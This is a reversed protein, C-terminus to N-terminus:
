AGGQRGAWVWGVAELVGEGQSHRSVGSAGVQALEEAGGSSPAPWKLEKGGEDLLGGGPLGCQGRRTVGGGEPETDRRGAGAREGVSRWLRGQCTRRPAQGSVWCGVPGPVCGGERLRRAASAVVEESGARVCGQVRGCGCMWSGSRAEPPRQAGTHATSLQRASCRAAPSLTAPIHTVCQRPHLPGLWM